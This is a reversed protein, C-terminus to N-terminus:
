CSISKYLSLGPVPIKYTTNWSYDSLNPKVYLWSLFFVCTNNIYSGHVPLHQTVSCFLIEMSIGLLYQWTLSWSIPCVKLTNFLVMANLYTQGWFAVIHKNLPRTFPRYKKELNLLFFYLSFFMSLFLHIFLKFPIGCYYEKEYYYLNGYNLLLHM